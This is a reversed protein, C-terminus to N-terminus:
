VPLIPPPDMGPDAVRKDDRKGYLIIDDADRETEVELLELGLKRAIDAADADDTYHWRNVMGSEPDVSLAFLKKPTKVITIKRGGDMQGKLFGVYGQYRCEPCDCRIRPVHANHGCQPCYQVGIDVLNHCWSCSRQIV